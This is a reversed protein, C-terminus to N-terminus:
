GSATSGAFHMWGGDGRYRRGALTVDARRVGDGSAVVSGIRRYGTPLPGAAPFTALMAHDEGGTLVWELAVAGLHKAVLEVEPSPVLAVPDLDVRVGSAMAVRRADRVLGDSVDILSTAGAQRAVVGARYDPAPRRHRVLVAAAAAAPLSPDALAAEGALLLALGAASDGLIGSVAVVDGARAGSRLVATGADCLRGVATGTVVVQDGAAMDGGAVVAGARACEAAIGDALQLVWEVEIGGPVTLSVLLASPEAGMAAIDALCAAATKAGVDAASSWDVRFDVGGVLTDTSLVVAGDCGLVAADDGVAVHLRPGAAVATMRQVAAAVLADEGMDRVTVM